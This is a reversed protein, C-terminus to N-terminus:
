IVKLGRLRAEQKLKHKYQKRIQSQIRRREARYLVPLQEKDLASAPKQNSAQQQQEILGKVFRHTIGKVKARFEAPHM